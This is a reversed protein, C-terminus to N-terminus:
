NRELIINDILRTEGVKVALAFLAKNKIESIEELTKTDCIKLYDIETEDFSNIIKEAECIIEKSFINKNEKKNKLIIEEAKKISKSLSLASKRQNKTLYSNRSSM